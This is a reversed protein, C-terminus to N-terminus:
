PVQVECGPQRSGEAIFEDYEVIHIIKFYIPTHASRADADVMCHLGLVAHSTAESGDDAGLDVSSLCKEPYPLRRRLSRM